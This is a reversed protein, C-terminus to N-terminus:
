VASPFCVRVVLSFCFHSFITYLRILEALLFFFCVFCLFFFRRCRDIQARMGPLVLAQYWKSHQAEVFVVPM